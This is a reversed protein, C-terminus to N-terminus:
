LNLRRLFMSYRLRGKRISKRTLRAHIFMDPGVLTNRLGLLLVENTPHQSLLRHTISERVALETGTVLGDEFLLGIVIRQALVPGGPEALM